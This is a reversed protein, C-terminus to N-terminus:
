LHSRTSLGELTHSLVYVIGPLAGDM